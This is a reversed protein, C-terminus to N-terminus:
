YTRKTILKWTAERREWIHFFNKTQLQEIQGGAGIRQAVETGSVYATVSDVQTINEIMRWLTVYYPLGNKSTILRNQTEDLTFDKAWLGILTVSDRKKLAGCELSELDIIKDETSTILLGQSKFLVNERNVIRWNESAGRRVSFNLARQSYLNPTALFKSSDATQSYSCFQILFTLALISLIKM